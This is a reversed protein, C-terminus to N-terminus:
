KQLLEKCKATLLQDIVEVFAKGEGDIKKELSKNEDKPIDLEKLEKRLNQRVKRLAIKQQEALQEVHSVLKKRSDGTLQPIKVVITTKAKEVRLNLPSLSLAKAIENINNSDFPQLQLTTGDVISVVSVHDIPVKSGYCDVKITRLLDPDARGASVGKFLTKLHEIIKGM